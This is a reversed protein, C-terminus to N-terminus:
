ATPANVESLNNESFWMQFNGNTLGINYSVLSGIQAHRALVIGEAIGRKWKCHVVEGVDFKYRGVEALRGIACRHRILMPEVNSGWGSDDQVVYYGKDCGVPDREVREIRAKHWKGNAWVEVVDGQNYNM